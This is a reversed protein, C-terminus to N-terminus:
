PQSRRFTTSLWRSLSVRRHSSRLAERVKAEDMWEPYPATPPPSGAAVLAPLHRRVSYDATFYGHNELVRMEASTFADLDTRIRAIVDSVLSQSYGGADPLKKKRKETFGYTIRWYGGDYRKCAPDAKWDGILKRVRLARTQGTVVATYRLLRPLLSRGVHFDFPAGCDSVLVYAAQDWVPELGMNDYVGGDTLALTTLLTRRDPAHYDGERYDAPAAGVLMPGFLPPVCASANVARALPWATGDKVYGAQYDGVRERSFIWNVGFTLDTACLVFTPSEPLDSILLPTLRRRYRRELHRVRPQPLIWNWLLHALVPVTRLDRAAFDHFPAVVDNSWDAFALGNRLGARAMCTALHGALISGGSVSSLWTIRGLVGLERLRRLAGLHFLAARFGGGSLCLAIGHRPREVPTPAVVIPAQTAM